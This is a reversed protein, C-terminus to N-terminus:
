WVDSAPKMFPVQPLIQLPSRLTPITGSPIKYGFACRM